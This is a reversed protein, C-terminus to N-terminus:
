LDACTQMQRSELRGSKGSGEMTDTAPREVPQLPPLSIGADPGDQRQWRVVLM